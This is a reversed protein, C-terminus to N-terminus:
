NCCFGTTKQEKRESKLQILRKNKRHGSPITVPPLKNPQETRPIRTKKKKSDELRELRSQSGTVQIVRIRIQIRIRRLKHVRQISVSRAKPKTKTLPNPTLPAGSPLITPLNRKQKQPLGKSGKKMVFSRQFFACFNESLKPTWFSGKERCTFKKWSEGLKNDRHNEDVM